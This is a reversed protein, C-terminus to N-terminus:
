LLRGRSGTGDAGMPGVEIVGSQRGGLRTKPHKKIAQDKNGRHRWRCRRRDQGRYTSRKGVGIPTHSYLVLVPGQHAIPGPLKDRLRTAGVDDGALPDERVLKMGVPGKIAVLSAPDESTESLAWPDVVILSKALNHFRGDNARHESNSDGAVLWNLLEIHLVGEEV